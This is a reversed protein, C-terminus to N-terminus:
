LDIRFEVLVRHTEIGITVPGSLSVPERIMFRVCTLPRCRLPAWPGSQDFDRFLPVCHAQAAHLETTREFMYLALVLDM